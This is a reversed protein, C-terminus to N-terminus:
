LSQAKKNVPCSRMKIEGPRKRKNKQEGRVAAREKGGKKKVDTERIERESEETEEGQKKKEEEDRYGM